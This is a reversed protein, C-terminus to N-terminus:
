QVCVCMCRCLYVYLICVGHPRTLAPRVTARCRRSRAPGGAAAHRRKVRHHTKNHAPAIFTHIRSNAHKTTHDAHADLKTHPAPIRVHSHSRTTARDLTQLHTWVRARTYTHTQARSPPRASEHTEPDMVAAYCHPPVVGAVYSRVCCGPSHCVACACHWRSGLLCARVSVSAVLIGPPWLVRGRTCQVGKGEARREGRASPERV